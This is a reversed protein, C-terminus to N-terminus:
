SFQSSSEIRHVLGLKPMKSSHHTSELHKSPKRAESRERTETGSQKHFLLSFQNLALPKSAPLNKSLQEDDTM